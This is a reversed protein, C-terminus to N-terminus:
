TTARVGDERLAECPVTEAIETVNEGNNISNVGVPARPTQVNTKFLGISVASQTTFKNWNDQLLDFAINKKMKRM